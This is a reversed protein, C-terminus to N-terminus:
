VHYVGEYVSEAKGQLWVDTVVNGSLTFYITLVEGSRTQVQFVKKVAGATQVAATRALTYGTILASAVSGTGCALTEGEVGREYTRVEVFHDNLVEVFDVNTGRPAFAKHYRIERGIAYVDIEDIGQVFVVTHPVGTDICHVRMKRKLGAIRIPIDLKLGKPPPLNIKVQEARVQAHVIGALTEITLDLDKKKKMGACHLAFCRAGNGCMEAESGDANFIRMRFDARRSREVVLLGDAGAGFKRECMKRAFAALARQSVFRHARNDILVFDNGAAVLKRFLIKRVM